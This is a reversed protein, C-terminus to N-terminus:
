ENAGRECTLDEGSQAQQAAMANLNISANEEETAKSNETVLGLKQAQAVSKKMADQITKACLLAARVQSDTLIWLLDDFLIQGKSCLMRCDKTRRRLTLRLEFQSLIVKLPTLSWKGNKTAATKTATAEIRLMQCNIAKFTLVQRRKEGDYVRSYKLDSPVNWRFDTSFVEIPGMMISAQFATSKIKAQVSEISISIGELVKQIMGYSGGVAESNPDGAAAVLPSPKNPSRPTDLIQVELSVSSMEIRIPTKTIHLIPIKVKVREVIASNISLWTPINLLSHLADTNLSINPLDLEGKTLSFNLKSPDVDNCFLALHKLLQKKIIGAM